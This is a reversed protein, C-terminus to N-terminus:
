SAIEQLMKDMGDRTCQQLANYRETTMEFPYGINNPGEFDALALTGNGDSLVNSLGMAWYPITPAVNRLDNIKEETLAAAGTEKTLPNFGPLQEEIILYNDDTASLSRQPRHALYTAPAVISSAHKKKAELFHLYGLARTVHQYTDASALADQNMNRLQEETAGFSLGQQHELVCARNVPGVLKVVYKKGDHALAPAEFVLNWVSLNQYGADKLTDNRENRAAKSEEPTLAYVKSLLADLLESNDSSWEACKEQLDAPMPSAESMIGPLSDPTLLKEEYLLYPNMSYVSSVGTIAAFLLLSYKNLM